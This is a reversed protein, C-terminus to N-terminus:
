PLDGATWDPTAMVHYVPKGYKAEVVQPLNMRLWRSTEKPLTSIIFGAYDPNARVEEDIATVPDEAGVKADALNIGRKQFMSRAKDALKRAV